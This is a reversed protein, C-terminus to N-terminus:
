RSLKDIYHVVSCLVIIIDPTHTHTHTHTIVVHITRGHGTVRDRTMPRQNKMEIKAARERSVTILSTITGIYLVNTYFYYIVFPYTRNRESM